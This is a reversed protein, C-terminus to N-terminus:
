NSFAKLINFLANHNKVNILIIYGNNLEFSITETINNFNIPTNILKPTKLLKQLEKYSAVYHLNNLSNFNITSFQMGSFCNFKLFCNQNDFKLTIKILNNYKKILFSIFLILFMLYSVILNINLLRFIIFVASSYLLPLPLTVIWNKLCYKLGNSFNFKIKFEVIKVPIITKSKPVTQIGESEKEKLINYLKKINWVSIIIDNNFADKFKVADGIPIIFTICNSTIPEVITRNFIIKKLQKSNIIEVNHIEEINLKKEGGFIDKIIIEKENKKITIFSNRILIILNLVIFISIMIINNYQKDLLIDSFVSTIIIAILFFPPVLIIFQIILQLIKSSIGQKAIMFHNNM